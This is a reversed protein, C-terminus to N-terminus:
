EGKMFRKAIRAAPKSWFRELERTVSELERPIDINQPCHRVCAGCATCQSAFGPKSPFAGMYALYLLRDPKSGKIGDGNYYSFATPILVGQPCPLCYECGTCPVRIGEAIVARAEAIARLEDAALAGAQAESALQLNANLQDITSMGSLVTLAEPHNWVWRLGWEAPTRGPVVADFVQQAAPPVKALKGGRLPEMVMVPMGKDVAHLLGATGAQRETDLYNYQIMCFDWDYDDVIRKFQGPGGHFSFGFNRIRGREKEREAWELLGMDVFRRYADFSTLMHLLYYDIYETQLHELSQQFYKDFDSARKVLSIPLKTAINIQARHPKLLKGVLVENGPYMWATDFYNVGQDIAHELLNRATEADFGGGRRPLRMCGFALQSLLQGNKRNERYLVCAVREAKSRSDQTHNRPPKSGGRRHYGLRCRNLCSM